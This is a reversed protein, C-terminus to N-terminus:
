YKKVVVNIEIPYFLKRVIKREYNPFYKELVKLFKFIVRFYLDFPLKYKLWDPRKQYLGSSFEIVKHSFIKTFLAELNSRDFNRVHALEYPYNPDLYPSLDERHPVRIILLGGKKLVSMIKKVCFNLDIVHELVDTCLIVDFYEDCYPMDEIKSYCVDIGKSKAVQLYSMSIDMGYADINKHDSCLKELLRGLGVGVDLLKLKQKKNRVNSHKTFIDITSSEMENWIDIPIWPNSDIDETSQTHDSSIDEYNQTYEDPRTFFPIGKKVELPKRNYLNM